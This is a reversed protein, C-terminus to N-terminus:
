TGKSADLVIRDVIKPLYTKDNIRLFEEALEDEWIGGFGRVREAAARLDDDYRV